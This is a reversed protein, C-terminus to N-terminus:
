KSNTNLITSIIEPRMTHRSNTDIIIQPFEDMDKILSQFHSAYPNMFCCSDDNNYILFANREPKGLKNSKMLQYLNFYSVKNYLQSYVQEWDGHNEYYKRYYMPLSGAYSISTSLEPMLAALWVAYWGGGSIGMIAINNAYSNDEIVANILRLHPYLFLSLPDLHPNKKDFFFAYNGHNSAETENLFIDGFRSPFVANGKNLGLGLMSMSLVDCGSDIFSKQLVNHYNHSFPDGQHGQIYIRLCQKDLQSKKFIGKINIGYYKINIEQFNENFITNLEASPEDPV